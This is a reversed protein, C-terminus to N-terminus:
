GRVEFTGVQTIAKRLLVVRGGVSEQIGEGNMEYGDPKSKRGVDIEAKCQKKEDPKGGFLKSSVEEGVSGFEFADCGTRNGELCM